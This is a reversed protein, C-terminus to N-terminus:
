LVKGPNLIGKPDFAKKIERMIELTRSGCFKQLEAKKLVGIGHEGSPQGGLKRVTDMLSEMVKPLKESWALPDLENKLINVHVNGDGAHGFCTVTMGHASGAEKAAAVLRPIEARPVVVDAKGIEGSRAKLAEALCKRSEWLRARQTADQAALVDLANHDMAIEGIKLLEEDLRAEDEGDLDIFVYAGASDGGPLDRGLFARAAKIATKDMFEAVAPIIRARMVSAVARSAPQIDPFAILLSVRRSPLPLLRLTIETIIGLTGESGIMLDLLHFGTANKVIKGGLTIICGDALAVQLGLVYDKTCGYKVARPGGAGVAVNGGISCSDLSAPDPPYFLGLAEVEKHIRGTVVGPECTISLSERDIEIIKDLREVSLVIGGDIAVAGGAVGTGAGRPIIPFGGESAWKLTAAVGEQSAPRVVATPIGSIRTSEDRAYRDLSCEATLIADSGLVAGLRELDERGPLNM